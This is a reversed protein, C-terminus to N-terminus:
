LAEVERDAAVYGSAAEFFFGEINDVAVLIDWIREMGENFKGTFDEM